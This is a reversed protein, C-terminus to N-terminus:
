KRILSFDSGTDMLANIKVGDLAVQIHNPIGLLIDDVVDTSLEQRWGAQGKRKPYVLSAVRKMVPGKMNQSTWEIQGNLTSKVSFGTTTSKLGTEM